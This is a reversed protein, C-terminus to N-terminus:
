SFPMQCVVGLGGCDVCARVDGDDVTDAWLEAYRSRVLKWGRGECRLCADLSLQDRRAVFNWDVVGHTEVVLLADRSARCPSPTLGGYERLCGECWGDIDVHDVLQDFAGDIASDTL